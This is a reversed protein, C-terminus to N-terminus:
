DTCTEDQKCTKGATCDTDAMCSQVGSVILPRSVESLVQFTVTGPAILASGIAVRSLTVSPFGAVGLAILSSVMSAPIELSGLDPVDCEVKGKTGGHHSIDLKIQMRAVNADGPADWSLSLAKGTELTVTGTSSLPAVMQSKIAFAGYPGGSVSLNLEAGEAAPPFPLVADGPLQYASAIPKMTIDATGLGSVTVAGLDQATPYSACKDDDVCVDSNKCAPDCFPARPKLLQCGGSSSVVDWAVNSPTVGDYVKGSLTTYADDTATKGVLGVIFSGVIANPDANSTGASGSAGASGAPAGGAGAAASSKAADSSCGVSSLACSLALAPAFGFYFANRM